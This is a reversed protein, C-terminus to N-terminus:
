KLFTVKQTFTQNATILRLFYTRMDLERPQWTYQHQGATIRENLLTGVLKGTGDNSYGSIGIPDRNFDISVSSGYFDGSAEGDIDSGLQTQAIILSASFYIM